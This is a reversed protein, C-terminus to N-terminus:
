WPTVQLTTLDKASDSPCQKGAARQHSTQTGTRSRTSTGRGQSGVPRGHSRCVGADNRLWAGGRRGGRVRFEGVHGRSGGPGRHEGVVLPHIPHSRDPGHRHVVITKRRWEPTSSRPIRLITKAGNSATVHIVVTPGVDSVVEGDVSGTPDPRATREGPLARVDLIAVLPVDANQHEPVELDLPRSGGLQIPQGNVQLGQHRGVPDGGPLDVGMAFPGPRGRRTRPSVQLRRHISDTSSAEDGSSVTKRASTDIM